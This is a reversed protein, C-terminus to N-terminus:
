NFRVGDIRMMLIVFLSISRAVEFAQWRDQGSRSISQLFIVRQRMTYLILHLILPSLPCCYLPQKIGLKLALEM